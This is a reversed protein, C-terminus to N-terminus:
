LYQAFLPSKIFKTSIPTFPVHMMLSPPLVGRSVTDISYDPSGRLLLPSSSASYFYGSHILRVAAIPRGAVMITNWHSCAVDSLVHLSGFIPRPFSFCQSNPGRGQDPSPASGLRGDEALGWSYIM